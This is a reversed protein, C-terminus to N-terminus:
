DSDYPPNGVPLPIQKPAYDLITTTQRQRKINIIISFVNDSKNVYKTNNPMLVCVTELSNWELRKKNTELQVWSSFLCTKPTM